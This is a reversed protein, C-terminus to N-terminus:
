RIKIVPPLNEDRLKAAFARLAEAQDEQTRQQISTLDCDLEELREAEREAMEAIELTRARRIADVTEPILAQAERIAVDHAASLRAFARSLSAENSM